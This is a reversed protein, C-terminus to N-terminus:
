TNHAGYLAYYVTALTSRATSIKDVVGAARLRGGGDGLVSLVAGVAFTRRRGRTKRITNKPGPANQVIAIGTFLSVVNCNM